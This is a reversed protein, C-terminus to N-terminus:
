AVILQLGDFRNFHRVNHTLLRLNHCLATAAIMLDHPAISAGSAQAEVWLRTYTRAVELDFALVRFRVFVEEVFQERRSRRLTSDARLVGHLLEAATIAAIGMPESEFAFVLSELDGGSREEAIFVSSDILIGM